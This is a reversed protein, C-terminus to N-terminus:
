AWYDPAGSDLFAQDDDGLQFQFHAPLDLQKKKDLVFVPAGAVIHFGTHEAAERCPGGDTGSIVLEDADRIKRAALVLLGLVASCASLSPNHLWIGAIRAQGRVVSIVAHGATQGDHAFAFSYFKATPCSELFTFFGAERPFANPANVGSLLATLAIPQMTLDHQQSPRSRLSWYMNRVFRLPLKANRAPHRLTHHLPRLPLVGKWQQFATTFGFAPLVKRTAASGGISYMFDSMAALKSVLTLGSGPAERASAWDIMQLGIKGHHNVPWLGAHAVIAGDREIVYSRDGPFDARPAFFKWRLVPESFLPGDTETGFSRLLLSRIAPLDTQAAARFLSPMACNYFGPRSEEDEEVRVVALASRAFYSSGHFPSSSVLVSQRRYCPDSDTPAALM